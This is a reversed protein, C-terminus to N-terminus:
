HTASAEGVGFTVTNDRKIQNALEIEWTLYANMAEEVGSNRDYARLYSDICAEDPPTLRDKVLPRGFAHWADTGGDLVRVDAGRALENVEAAALRAIVGDPSTIVVHKTGALQPTLAALRTRVGWLAGPIHGERFDISRALDIVVTGNGSDLLAVLGTVDIMSMAAGLEPVPVRERGTARIAELGGEVVFVDRHGM